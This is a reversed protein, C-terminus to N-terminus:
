PLPIEIEEDTPVDLGAQEFARKYYLRYAPIYAKRFGREQGRRFGAAYGRAAGQIAGAQKGAAAGELRAQDVDAGSGKGLLYTGAGVLLCALAIAAVTGIRKLNTDPAGPLEVKRAETLLAAWFAKVKPGIPERPEKPEAPPKVEKAPKTEKTPKAKKAPKAKKNAKAPQEPEPEPGEPQETEPLEDPAEAEAPVDVEELDELEEEEVYLDGDEFYTGPEPVEVEEGEPAQYPDVDFGPGPEGGEDELEDRAEVPEEEDKRRMQGRVM